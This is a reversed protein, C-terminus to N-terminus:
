RTVQDPQPADVWETLWISGGTCAVEIGREDETLSTRLVRVLQGDVEALPGPGTTMGYRFTRVQNHIRMPTWSWDISSFGPEMWGAYSALGEHQPEGPDGDAVRALAPGLLERVASEIKMSADAFTQDETITIGHKAALINGSDFAETMRHVTVGFDPDGNRIAWHVPIPGRYKPLASAHVNVAGLRPIELVPRPLRWPLGYVVLVDLDYGALAKAIGTAGGPLLVDM